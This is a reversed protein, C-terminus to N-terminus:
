QKDQVFDRDAVDPCSSGETGGSAGDRLEDTAGM